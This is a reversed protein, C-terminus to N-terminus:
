LIICVGGMHMHMCVSMSILHPDNNSVVDLLHHGSSLPKIIKSLFCTCPISLKVKLTCAHTKSDCRLALCSALEGNYRLFTHIIMLKHTDHKLFAIFMQTHTLLTICVLSHMCAEALPDTRQIRKMPMHSAKAVQM